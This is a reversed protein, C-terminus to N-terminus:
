NFKYALGVRFIWPSLSMSKGELKMNDGDSWKITTESQNYTAAANLLLNDTLKFDAGVQAVAGWTNKTNVEGGLSDNCDNKEAKYYTYNIGFGVYPQLPSDDELLYAQLIVNFPMASITAVKANRTEENVTITANWDHKYPTSTSLELGFRDSVMYTFAVGPHINNKPKSIESYAGMGNRLGNDEDETFATGRFDKHVGYVLALGARGIMDGGQYANVAPAVVSAVTAAALLLKKNKM